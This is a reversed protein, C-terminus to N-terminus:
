KIIAFGNAREDEPAASLLAKDVWKQHSNCAQLRMTGSKYGAGFAPNLEDGPRTLLAIITGNLGEGPNNPPHM